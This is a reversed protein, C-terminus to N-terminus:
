CRWYFLSCDAWLFASAAPRAVLQAGSFRELTREALREIEAKKAVDTPVELVETGLARVEEAAAITM